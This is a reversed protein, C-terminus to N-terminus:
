AVFSVGLSGLPSLDVTVEDGAEVFLLPAIAGTIVVEGAGLREGGEALLASVHVVTAAATELAEGADLEHEVSGNRSVSLRLSEPRDASPPGLLVGRHFVNEAVIQEVDEFPLDIDVIEIAVSYGGVAAGATELDVSGEVEDSIHVALEAEVAVAKGDDLSYDAGDELLTGTLNGIVTADIGLAEQIAPANLGVKWGLPRDGAVIREHLDAFQRELGSIVRPDTM